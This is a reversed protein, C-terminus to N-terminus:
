STASANIPTGCEPCRGTTNGTLNYGCTRCMGRGPRQDLWWMWLTPLAILGLPIWLPIRLVAWGNLYSVAQPWASRDFSPEFTNVELDALPDHVGYTPGFSSRRQRLKHGSGDARSVEIARGWIAIGLSGNHVYELNLNVNLEILILLCAITGAWKLVPRVQVRKMTFEGDGAWM